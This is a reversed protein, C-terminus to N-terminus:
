EFVTEYNMKPSNLFLGLFRANLGLDKPSFHVAKWAGFVEVIHIVRILCSNVRNPSFDRGRPAQCLDSIKTGLRLERYTSWSQRKNLTM